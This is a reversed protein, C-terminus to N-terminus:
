KTPTTFSVSLIKSHGYAVSLTLPTVGGKDKTDVSADNYLLINLFKLNGNLAAFHM